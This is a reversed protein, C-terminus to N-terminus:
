ATAHKRKWGLAYLALTGCSALLVYGVMFMLPYGGASDVIFSWAVASVTGMLAGVMTIKSYINTYDAGGFVTRTLLPTQVTTMAYAIGFLFAGALLLAIQAPALWMLTVGAIGAGVGLCIGAHVSRDNIIGLLVKGVAQGGMCASAVVGSAAAVAPLSDAFSSAYSPLFQYINQNLTILGSFLLVAFFAPSRLAQALTLGSTTGNMPETVGAASGAPSDVDPAQIAGLPLLGKDAPTNRIVLLTFPLTGVLIIVGFVMYAVRWSEAGGAILATGVPNFIVGGIGTFAMCLGVFFGVRKVFWANILTPIALYLLPALGVGMVAGCVYFQWMQQCLGMGICGAGCLAVCGSLLARLDCRGMIKGSVPLAVMMALNLISFYLTFTAKPVGFFESVPTFFIGACSLVLACPLCTIAICAAVIAYAYHPGGKARQNADTM